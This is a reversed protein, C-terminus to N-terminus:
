RRERRATDRAGAPIGELSTQIALFSTGFVFMGRVIYAGFAMAAAFAVAFPALEPM